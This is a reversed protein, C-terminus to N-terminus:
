ISDLAVFQATGVAPFGNAGEEEFVAMQRATASVMEREAGVFCLTIASYEMDFDLLEPCLPGQKTLFTLLDAHDYFALPITVRQDTLCREWPVDFVTDTYPEFSTCVQRFLFGV